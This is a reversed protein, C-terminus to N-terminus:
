EDSFPIIRARFPSNSFSTPKDMTLSIPSDSYAIQTSSVTSLILGTIYANTALLVSGSLSYSIDWNIEICSSRCLPTPLFLFFLEIPICLRSWTTNGNFYVVTGFCKENTGKSLSFSNVMSHIKFFKSTPFFYPCMRRSEPTKGINVSECFFTKDKGGIMFPLRVFIFDFV